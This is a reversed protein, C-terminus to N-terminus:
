SGGKAAKPLETYAVVSAVVGSASFIRGCYRKADELSDFRFWRGRYHVKYRLM